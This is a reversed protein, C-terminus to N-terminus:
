VTEEQKESTDQIDSTSPSDKPGIMIGQNYQSNLVTVGNRISIIENEQKTLQKLAEEEMSNEPSIVISLKGNAVIQVKM